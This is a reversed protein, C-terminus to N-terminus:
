KGVKKQVYTEIWAPLKTIMARFIHEGSLSMIIVLPIILDENFVGYVISDEVHSWQILLQPGYYGCLIGAIVGGYARKYRYRREQPTEDESAPEESMLWKALLTLSIVIFLETDEFLERM